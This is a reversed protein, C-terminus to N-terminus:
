FISAVRKKREELTSTAVKRLNYAQGFYAMLDIFYRTLNISFGNETTKYDWPYTHHYNHYGEGFAGFSVWPNERPQIKENYPRDGFM